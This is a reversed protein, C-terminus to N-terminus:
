AAKRLSRAISRVGPLPYLSGPFVHRDAKRKGHEAFQEFCQAFPHLPVGRWRRVSFSGRFGHKGAQGSIAPVLHAEPDLVGQLLEKLQEKSVSDEMELIQDWIDREKLIEISLDYLNIELIRVGAQELRNVLQRQLREM